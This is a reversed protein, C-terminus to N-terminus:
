ETQLAIHALAVRGVYESYAPPIAERLEDRVMWDIDMIKKALAVGSFHGVIHMFEGDNVPRGM